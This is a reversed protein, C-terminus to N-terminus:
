LSLAIEDFILVFLIDTADHERGSAHRGTVLAIM